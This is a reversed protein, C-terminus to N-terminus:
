VENALKARKAGKAARLAAGSPGDLRLTKKLMDLYLEENEMITTHDWNDIKLLRNTIAFETPKRVSTVPDKPFILDLKDAYEMNKVKNNMELTLPIQNGLSSRCADRQDAQDFINLWNSRKGPRRPFVHEVSIETPDIKLDGGAFIDNLMLLVLKSSQTSASYLNYTLQYLIKKQEDKSLFLRSTAKNLHTSDMIDRILGRHRTLRKSEGLGLITLGYVLRHLESLFVEIEENRGKHTSLFQIAPPIWADNKIWRLMTLHRHISHEAPLNRADPDKIYIMAEALPTVVNNIYAASGGALKSIAINESIIRESRRGHIRQIFSFIGDFEEGLLKEYHRWSNTVIARENAPVSGIFLARAIDSIALKRGTQNIGMFIKYGADLDKATVCILTVRETIFRLLSSRHEPAMQELRKKFLDRIDLINEQSAHLDSDECDLNTSGLPQIFHEFIDNDNTFLVLRYPHVSGDDVEILKRIHDTETEQDALDRLVSLLITLTALRQQGDIVGNIETSKQNPTDTNPTLSIASASSGEELQQLVSVSMGLFYPTQDEEAFSLVLDNLLRMAEKSTWSFPRQYAPLVFFKDGAFLQGITKKSVEFSM